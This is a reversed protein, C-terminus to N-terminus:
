YCKVHGIDHSVEWARWYGGTSNCGRSLADMSRYLCALGAGGWNYTGIEDLKELSPMYYLCVGHGKNNFLTTGLLTLIFVRVLIDEEAETKPKWKAYHKKIDSYSIRLKGMNAIPAGFLKRVLTKNKHAEMDYKLTKGCVPLGTIASFDMPTMTREGVEDLVFSHTTDWWREALAQLLCRDMVGKRGLINMFNTFM